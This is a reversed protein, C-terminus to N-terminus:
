PMVRTAFEVAVMQEGAIEITASGMRGWQVAPELRVDFSVELENHGQPVDFTWWTWQGNQYSSAPEPELGNEDFMGLYDSDIRTTIQSPLPAGDDTAIAVSFPTALGPRTVSAHQVSVTLGNGSNQATRTRVGFIGILGALVVVGVFILSVTRLVTEGGNAGSDDAPITSLADSGDIM